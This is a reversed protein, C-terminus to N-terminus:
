AARGSGRLVRIILDSLNIVLIAFLLRDLFRRRASRDIDDAILKKDLLTQVDRVSRSENAMMTVSRMLSGRELAFQRAIDELVTVRANTQELNGQLLESMADISATIHYISGAASDGFSPDGMQSNSLDPM